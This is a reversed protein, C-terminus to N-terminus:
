LVKKLIKMKFFLNEVIHKHSTPPPEYAVTPCATM